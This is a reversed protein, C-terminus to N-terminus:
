AANDPAAGGRGGSELKWAVVYGIGILLPILGIAWHGHFKGGFDAGSLFYLVLALGAAILLIGTRLDSGRRAPVPSLLAEPIPLDKAVLAMIIEGQIRAKRLRYYLIISVLVIPALFPMGIAFFPILDELSQM